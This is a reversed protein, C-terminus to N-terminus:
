LFKYRNPAAADLAQPSARLEPRQDGPLREAARRLGDLVHLLAGNRQARCHTVLRECGVNTGASDTNLAIKSGGFM